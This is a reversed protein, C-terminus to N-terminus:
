SPREVDGDGEAEPHMKIYTALILFYNSADICTDILSENAVAPPRSLLNSIRAMKDSIRILIGRPLSVGLAESGRFNAFPEGNGAYDRNKNRVIAMGIQSFNAMHAMFIDERTSQRAPIIITPVAENPNVEFNVEERFHKDSLHIINGVTFPPEDSM